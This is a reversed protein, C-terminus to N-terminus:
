CMEFDINIGNLVNRAEDEDLLRLLSERMDYYLARNKFDIKGFRKDIIRFIRTMVESTLREHKKIKNTLECTGSDDNLIMDTFINDAVSLNASLLNVIEHVLFEGSSVSKLYYEDNKRDVCRNDIVGLKDSESIMINRRYVDPENFKGEDYMKYIGVVLNELENDSMAELRSNILIFDEVYIKIMEKLLVEHTQPFAIVNNYESESCLSRFCDYLLHFNDSLYLERGPLREELIYYDYNMLYPSPFFRRKENEIKIWSYLKPVNLGAFAFDNMEDVYCEFVREFSQPFESCMIKKVVFKDDIMYAIGDGGSRSPYKDLKSLLGLLIADYQNSQQIEREM